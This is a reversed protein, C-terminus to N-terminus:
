YIAPSDYVRYRIHGWWESKFLLSFLVLGLFLGYRREEEKRYVHATLIESRTQGDWKGVRSPCRTLVGPPKRCHILMVLVPAKPLPPM